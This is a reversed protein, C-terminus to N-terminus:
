LCRACSVVGHNCRKVVTSLIESGMGSSADAVFCLATSTMQREFSKALLECFVLLPVRVRRHHLSTTPQQRSNMNGDDAAAGAGGADGGCSEAQSQPSFTPFALFLYYTNPDNEDALDQELAVIVPTSKRGGGDSDSSSSSSLIERIINEMGDVDKKSLKEWADLESKPNYHRKGGGVYQRIMLKNYECGQEIVYKYEQRRKSHKLM